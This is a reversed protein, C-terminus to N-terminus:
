GGCCERLEQAVRRGPEVAGRKAAQRRAFQQQGIRDFDLLNVPQDAGQNVDLQQAAVAEGPGIAQRAQVGAQLM